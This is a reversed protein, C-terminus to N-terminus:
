QPEAQESPTATSRPILVIRFGIHDSTLIREEREIEPSNLVLLDAYLLPRDKRYDRGRLTVTSYGEPTYESTWEAGNGSMDRCQFPSVDDTSSGVPAPGEAARNVAIKPRLTSNWDGRFPGWGANKRADASLDYRGAAADWQEPSPLSGGLWKAFEEAQHYGVRMVPLQPHEAAPMDDGVGQSAGREAWENPWEEPTLSPHSKVYQSNFEAFLENWVKNEQMYFSPIKQEAHHRVLVFEVPKGSPLKAENPLSRIIRSWYKTGEEPILVLEANDAPQCNPPLLTPAPTLLEFRYGSFHLGAFTAAGGALLLGGIALVKRRSPGAGRPQADGLVAAQLETVFEVCSKYRQEGKKALARHLVSQEELPLPRLDPLMTLHKTMVELQTDATFLPRGLRLEVYTSALSYQDSTPGVKHEWVEPGMYLPTGIRTARLDTGEQMFLRALGFDALRAHGSSLLINAPKVDRHLVQNAHLYDLGEAAERMYGLLEPAPVGPLGQRRCEDFRQQLSRDALDMVIYLHDDALWYAQVQLLFAHRLRKMLELARLEVQTLSDSTTWKILKVAVEVGGPATARWVEGYAGRGICELLQYGDGIPVIKRKGSGTLSGASGAVLTGQSHLTEPAPTLRSITEQLEVFQRPFRRRYNELAPTDGHQSRVRYEAYILDVPLEAASGLEPYTELYDELLLPERRHWRHDLDIPILEHLTPVRLPDGLPPLYTVLSIGTEKPGCARWSDVFKASMQEIRRQEAERLQTHRQPMPLSQLFLSQRSPGCHPMGGIENLHIM